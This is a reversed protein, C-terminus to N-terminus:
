AFRGRKANGQGGGNGSDRGGNMGFNGFGSIDFFDVYQNRRKTGGGSGISNNSARPALPVKSNANQWGTATSPIPSNFTFMGSSEPPSELQEVIGTTQSPYQPLTHSPQFTFSQHHPAQQQQQPLEPYMPDQQRPAPEEDKPANGDEMDSEASMERQQQPPASGGRGNVNGSSGSGGSNGGRTDHRRDIVWDRIRSLALVPDSYASENDIAELVDSLADTYGDQRSNRILAASSRYLHTVSRAASQFAEILTQGDDTPEPSLQKPPHNPRSSSSSSSTNSNSNGPLTSSLSTMDM